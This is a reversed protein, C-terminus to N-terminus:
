TYPIQQTYTSWYVQIYNYNDSALARLIVTIFAQLHREPCEYLKVCITLYMRICRKCQSM